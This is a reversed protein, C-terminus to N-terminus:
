ILKADELLSCTLNLTHSVNEETETYDRKLNETIKHKEEKTPKRLSLYIMTYYITGSISHVHIVTSRSWDM